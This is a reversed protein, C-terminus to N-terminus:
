TEKFEADTKIQRLQSSVLHTASNNILLYGTEKDVMYAADISKVPIDGRTVTFHLLEKQGTRKIGLKIKSDKPGKLKAMAQENTLEKSQNISVTYAPVTYDGFEVTVEQVSQAKIGAMLAMTLVLLSIKKM